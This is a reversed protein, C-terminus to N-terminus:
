IHENVQQQVILINGCMKKESNIKPCNHEIDNWCSSILVQLLPSVSHFVFFIPGFIFYTFFVFKLYALLVLNWWLNLKLVWANPVENSASRQWSMFSPKANLLHMLQVNGKLFHDSLAKTIQSLLSYKYKNSKKYLNIYLHRLLAIGELVHEM